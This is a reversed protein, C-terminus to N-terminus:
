LLAACSATLIALTQNVTAKQDRASSPLRELGAGQARLLSDRGSNERTDSCFDLRQGMEKERGRGGVDYSSSVRHGDDEFIVDHSHPAHFHLHFIIQAKKKVSHLILTHGELRQTYTPAWLQVICFIGCLLAPHQFHFFTVSSCRWFYLTLNKSRLMTWQGKRDNKFPVDSAFNM